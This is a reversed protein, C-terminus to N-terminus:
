SSFLSCLNTSLFFFMHLSHFLLATDSHAFPRSLFFLLFSLFSLSLSLSFSIFFFLSLSLSLSLLLLLLLTSSVDAVKFTEKVWLMTKFFNPSDDRLYPCCLLVYCLCVYLLYFVMGANLM